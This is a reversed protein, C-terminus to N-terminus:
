KLLEGKLEAVTKNLVPHRKYPSLQALPTLVFDRRQMDIHPIHLTPTDIVLDDYFLIDLDLTRPGWRLTRVRDAEAEIGNLVKLLEEPTLLTKLILAGNLFEDQDTVGYPATCIYDSM